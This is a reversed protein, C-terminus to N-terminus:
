RRTSRVLAWEEADIEHDNGDEDRIHWTRVAGRDATGVVASGRGVVLGDHIQEGGVERRFTHTTKAEQLAKMEADTVIDRRTAVDCQVGRAVLECRDGLAEVCEAHAYAFGYRKQSQKAFTALFFRLILLQEFRM